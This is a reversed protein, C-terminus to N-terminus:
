RLVKLITQNNEAVKASTKYVHVLKIVTRKELGGLVKKTCALVFGVIACIGYSWVLTPAPPFCRNTLTSQLIHPPSLLPSFRSYKEKRGLLLRKQVFTTITKM